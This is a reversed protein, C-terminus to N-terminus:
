RFVEMSEVVDPEVTDAPEVKLVSEWPANTALDLVLGKEDEFESLLILDLSVSKGGGGGGLSKEGGLDPLLQFVLRCLGKSLM